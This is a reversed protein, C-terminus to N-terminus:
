KLVHFFLFLAAIEFYYSFIVFFDVLYKQGTVSLNRDCWKRDPPKAFLYHKSNQKM